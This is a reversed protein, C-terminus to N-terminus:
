NKITTKIAISNMGGGYKAWMDPCEENSCYWCNVVILERGGAENKKHMTDLQNHLNKPINEKFKQASALMKNKSLEPISGEFEDQFTGLTNFWIAEHALISIYKYMPMYRWITKTLNMSNMKENALIFSM